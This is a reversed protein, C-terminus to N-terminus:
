YCHSPDDSTLDPPSGHLRERAEAAREHLGPPRATLWDLL